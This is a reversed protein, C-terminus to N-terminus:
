MFLGAILYAALSAAYAIAIQYAISFATWKRSGIERSLTATAGVCPVYLLVFVLFALAARATFGGATMAQFAASGSGMAFGYLISLTSVVSEKAVFGTLLAVAAMWTGFGMPKFVPAIFGGITGIISSGIEEESLLRFRFDFRMLFWIVVSMAFILTGAKLLFHKVREWVHLMTDKFKPLRYPPLEIMFAADNGRFLTKKFLLGSVIGLIIGIIYLGIIVLAAKGGFFAGAILGYVPLKASCSMFPILLMTNRKDKMNEMTRTGMIAPVSCGFGMLLPIFSKGSLGFRRMPKDMMFAIRSMYGSDELLSLCLFLVAIQPLFSLVGGVGRLIGDCVLSVFWVPASAAELGKSVAPVATDFILWEMFEQLKAGVTSFTLAFILAMIGLFIPIALYKNTLVRDIKDSLGPKGGKDKKFYCAAVVGDIYRYRSDALLAINDTYPSASATAYENVIARVEGLKDEPLKLREEVPVDGELLKMAAWHTPLGAKRAYEDIVADLKHHIGHTFDDYLHDPELRFGEHFQTHVALILRQAQSVLDKVGEGTRASIPIVPIGLELSLRKCDIRDGNKEVEDMMNLAIIMPRELELLQVTLYLNRELNTGDIINIIADPQEDVIFRRAVIEEMTYPSLSYIGPLDVLTMEHGMTCLGGDTKIKGEKKEVTVGPFNGVYERSGTMANFLTTKGCNPNGALALKVPKDPFLEKPCAEGGKGKNHKRGCVECGELPSLMLETLKAAREHVNKDERDTDTEAELLSRGTRMFDAIAEAKARLADGAEDDTMLEIKKADELRLSLAYGRISLELPDGMPARKKVTIATGPTIGMDFLRRRLAPEEATLRRCYATQGIGLEALTRDNKENAM